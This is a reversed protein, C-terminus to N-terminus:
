RILVMKNVKRFRDAKIEYLYLGSSVKNGLRDLGHWELDYKGASQKENVLKQVEKGTVDFITIKVISSKPLGYSIITVPNFPNPYNQKVFYTSPVGGSEDSLSTIQVSVVDSYGSKNGSFDIAMLTYYYSNGADIQSDIFSNDTTQALPESSNDFYNEINRHVAFYQFDKDPSNDWNLEISNTEGLNAMLGKPVSPALNDVSYGSVINSVFNGEEMGAIVRFYILGASEVTSDKTTPVLVSYVSKGYATTSTAAMWGSGNNIEVTYLEASTIKSLILSDTDYSSRYFQVNVWGGQDLPIDSINSILPEELYTPPVKNGSSDTWLVWADSGGAGFSETIGICVYGGSQDQYIYQGFDKLQGGYTKSWIEIGEGDVKLILLDWGGAGFSETYGTIIYNGDNTFNLIHGYETSSGGFTSARIVDGESDTILIWIDRSGTFSETYGMVMIKNDLMEQVSIGADRENGGYTKSWLSDGNSDLKVLWLDYRRDLDTVTYGAIIYGGDSTKKISRAQDQDVGGMITQWGLNGM